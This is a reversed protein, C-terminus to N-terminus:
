FDQIQRCELYFRKDTAEGMSFTKRPLAGELIVTRFFENKQMAALYFGINGSEQSISLFADDGHIYDIGGAGKKELFIDLFDQITGVPLQNTPDSISLATYSDKQAMGIIQKDSNSKEVMEKLEDFSNCHTVNLKPFFDKLATEINRNVGFLVRHIPEFKLGPDHINEVEVLAYRLPHNPPLYTKKKEWVAKATALSHNGDGMAFLLPPRNDPLQYRDKFFSPHILTELKEVIQKEIKQDNILYGKIHGSGLMLDFDYLLKASSTLNWLPEIVQKKPDDILVLIHPLELIANERIRVRPPLRELITGETTRILSSSGKNYDYKELDLALLVGHRTGTSITREVLILGEIPIITKEWIYDRMNQNIASIIEPEEPKNLSIEPLILNLTSPSHNVTDRVKKWYEPQSTFQDCAIVAWKTLDIASNPVLLDPIQIGISPYNRMNEIRPKSKVLPFFYFVGM